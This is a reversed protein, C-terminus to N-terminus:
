RAMRQSAIKLVNNVCSDRAISMQSRCSTIRGKAVKSRSTTANNDEDDEDQYLASFLNEHRMGDASQQHLKIPTQQEESGLIKGSTEESMKQRSQWKMTPISPPLQQFKQELYRRTGM